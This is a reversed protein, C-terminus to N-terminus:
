QQLAPPAEFLLTQLEYIAQGTKSHEVIVQVEHLGDISAPTVTQRWQYLPLEPGCQGETSGDTGFGEARLSEIQGAALLAARTQLESEKSSALATTLGQVMGALA